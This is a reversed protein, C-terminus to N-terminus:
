IDPKINEKLHILLFFLFSSINANGPIQLYLIHNVKLWSCGASVRLWPWIQLKSDTDEPLNMGKCVKEWSSQHVARSLTAFCEPLFTLFTRTVEHLHLYQLNANHSKVSRERPGSSAAEHGPAMDGIIPWSVPACGQLVAYSPLVKNDHSYFFRGVWNKCPCLM